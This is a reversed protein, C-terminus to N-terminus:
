GFVFDHFLLWLDAHVAQHVHQSIAEPAGTFCSTTSRSLASLRGDFAMTSVLRATVALRWQDSVLRATAQRLGLVRRSIGKTSIKFLEELFQNYM